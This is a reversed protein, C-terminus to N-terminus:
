KMPFIGLMKLCIWKTRHNEWSYLFRWKTRPNEWSAVNSSAAHSPRKWRLNWIGLQQNTAPDYFKLLDSLPTRFYPYGMCKGMSWWNNPHYSPHVQIPVGRIDVFPLGGSLISRSPSSKPYMFPIIPFMVTIPHAPAGAKSFPHFQIAHFFFLAGDDMAHFFSIKFNRSIFNQSKMIEM